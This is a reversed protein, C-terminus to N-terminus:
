NTGSDPKISEFNLELQSEIKIPTTPSAEIRTSQEQRITSPTEHAGGIMAREVSWPVGIPSRGEESTASDILKFIKRKDISPLPESQRVSIVSPKSALRQNLTSVTSELQRVRWWLLGIAVFMVVGVLTALSPKKMYRRGQAHLM